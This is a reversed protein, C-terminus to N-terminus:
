LLSDLHYCHLITYGDCGYDFKQDIAKCCVDFQLPKTGRELEATLFMWKM